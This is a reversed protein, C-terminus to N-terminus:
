GFRSGGTVSIALFVTRAHSLRGTSLGCVALCAALCLEAKRPETRNSAQHSAQPFANSTGSREPPAIEIVVPQTM